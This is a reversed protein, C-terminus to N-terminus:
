RKLFPFNQFKGEELARAVSGEPMSMKLSHSKLFSMTNDYLMNALKIIRDTAERPLSNMVETESELAKGSREVPVFCSILKLRTISSTPDDMFERNESRSRNERSRHSPAVVKLVLEHWPQVRLVNM